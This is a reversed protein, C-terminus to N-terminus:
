FRFVGRGLFVCKDLLGDQRREVKYNGKMQEVM